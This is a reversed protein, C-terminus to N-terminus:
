KLTQPPNNLIKIFERLARDPVDNWTTLEHTSSVSMLHNKRVIITQYEASIIEEDRYLYYISNISGEECFKFSQWGQLAYVLINNLLENRIQSM